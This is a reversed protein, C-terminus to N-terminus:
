PNEGKGRVRGGRWPSFAPHVPDADQLYCTNSYITLDGKVIGEFGIINHVINYIEMYPANGSREM